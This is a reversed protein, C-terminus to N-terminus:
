NGIIVKATQINSGDSVKVIYMGSYLTQINFSQMTVGQAMISKLVVQGSTNILEINRTSLANNSQITLMDKSPNNHIILISGGESITISVINSYKYKGDNDITKLRYFYKGNALKKDTCKYIYSGNAAITNSTTFNIGDISREALYFAVNTEVGVNWRIAADNKNEVQVTFGYVDVPLSQGTYLIAGGPIVNNTSTSTVVGYYQSSLVFPYAPVSSADITVFYAYIGSPYEPTICFRGNYQDLDGAGATYAYDECMSGLPYTTNVPPGALSTGNAGASRTTISSLVYSSVMRKIAGTGNTNTYAYAGYIPYGDWAYGIIPSHVTTAAQDYLCVPTVHHHYVGGPAAHGKCNDFSIGEWYYANRNWGTNSIGNTMASTTANWYQGDKANFIGVGNTWIGINGLGTYTKTGTNQVPNRTFKSIFNQTSPTNPNAMWPGITYAPIDSSSVYADTSTYYVSQVNCPLSNYGTAGTTNRIWSTIVATQATSIICTISLIFFTFFLKRM